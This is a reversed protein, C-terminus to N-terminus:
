ELGEKFKIKSEAEKLIRNYEDDTLTHRIIFHENILMAVWDSKTIM